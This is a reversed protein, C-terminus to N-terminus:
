GRTSKFVGGGQEANNQGRRTEAAKRSRHPRERVGACVQVQAPAKDFAKINTIDAESLLRATSYTEWPVEHTLVQNVQSKLTAEAAGALTPSM